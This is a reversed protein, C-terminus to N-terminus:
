YKNKNCMQSIYNSRLLLYVSKIENSILIESYYVNYKFNMHIKTFCNYYNITIVATIM